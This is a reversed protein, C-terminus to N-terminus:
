RIIGRAAEHISIQCPRMVSNISSALFLTFIQYKTPLLPLILEVSALLDQSCVLKKTQPHYSESCMM